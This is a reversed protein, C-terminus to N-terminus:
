GGLRFQLSGLCVASVTPGAPKIWAVESLGEVPKGQYLKSLMLITRENQIFFSVQDASGACIGVVCRDSVYDLCAPM